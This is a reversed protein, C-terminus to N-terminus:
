VCAVFKAANAVLNKVHTEGIQPCVRKLKFPNFDNMVTRTVLFYKTFKVIQSTKRSKTDNTFNLFRSFCGYLVSM